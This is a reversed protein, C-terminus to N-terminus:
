STIDKLFADECDKAIRQIETALEQFSEADSCNVGYKFLGQIAGFVTSYFYRQSLANTDLDESNQRSEPIRCLVVNMSNASTTIVWEKNIRINM